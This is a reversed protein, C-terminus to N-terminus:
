IHILSLFLLKAAFNFLVAIYVFGCLTVAVAMLTEVGRIPERMQLTFVGIMALCVAGMDLGVPVGGGRYFGAHLAISYAVALLIGFRAFCRVGAARLMQFFELTAVVTLLAILGLYAWSQMSAFALGVMGWLALTSATRRVFVRAKSPASTPTTVAM